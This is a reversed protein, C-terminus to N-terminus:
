SMGELRLPTAIIILFHKNLSDRPPPFLESIVASQHPISCRVACCVLDTQLTVVSWCCYERSSPRPELVVCIQVLADSVGVALLSHGPFLVPQKAKEPYRM